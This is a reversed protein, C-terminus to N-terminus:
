LGDRIPRTKSYALVQRQLGKEREAEKGCKKLETISKQMATYAASCAEDLKESSSFATSSTPLLPLRMQKLNHKQRGATM